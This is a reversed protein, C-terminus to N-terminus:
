SLFSVFSVFLLPNLLDFPDPNFSLNMFNLCVNQPHINLAMIYSIFLNWKAAIALVMLSTRQKSYVRVAQYFRDNKESKKIKSCFTKKKM